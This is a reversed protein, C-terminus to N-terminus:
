NLFLIAATEADTESLSELVAPNDVRQTSLKTQSAQTLDDVSVVGKPALKARILGDVVV